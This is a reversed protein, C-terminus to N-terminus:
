NRESYIKTWQAVVREQERLLQTARGQVKDVKRTTPHTHCAHRTQASQRFCISAYFFPHANRPGWRERWPQCLSLHQPPVIPPTRIASDANLYVPRESSCSWLPIQTLPFYARRTLGSLTHLRSSLAPYSFKVPTDVPFSHHHTINKGRHGSIIHMCFPNDEWGCDCTRLRPESKVLEEHSLWYKSPFFFMTKSFSPPSDTCYITNRM